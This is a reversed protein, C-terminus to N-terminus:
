FLSRPFVPNKLCARAINTHCDLGSKFILTEIEVFNGRRISGCVLECLLDLLHKTRGILGVVRLENEVTKKTFLPRSFLAGCPLFVSLCRGICPSGSIRAEFTWLSPTSTRHASGVDLSTVGAKAPKRRPARLSEQTCFISEIGAFILLYRGGGTM